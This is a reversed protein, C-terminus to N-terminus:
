AGILPVTARPTRVSGEVRVEVKAQKSFARMGSM